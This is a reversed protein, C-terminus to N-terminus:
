RAQLDHVPHGNLQVDHMAGRGVVGQV